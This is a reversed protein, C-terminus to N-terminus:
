SSPKCTTCSPAPGCHSPLLRTNPDRSQTLTRQFKLGATSCTRVVLETTPTLEIHQQLNRNWLSSVLLALSPPGMAALLAEMTVTASTPCNMDSSPILLTVRFSDSMSAMSSVMTYSPFPSLHSLRSPFRRYRATWGNTGYAPSTEQGQPTQGTMLCQPSRPATVGTM